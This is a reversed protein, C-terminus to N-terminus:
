KRFITYEWTDLNLLFCMDTVFAASDICVKHRNAYWLPEECNFDEPLNLDEALYPIPTHGHVVVVDSFHKEDWEDWFHERSWILDQEEPMWMGGDEADYIPTYGAHSLLVLQNQTNEYMAHTPYKKIHEIWQEGWQDCTFDYFTTKGGNHALLSFDSGVGGHSIYPEAAAILMDEHNGKLPIFRSDRAIMKIMEWGHAGRDAADGLFYVSDDPQLFKQIKVLLEKQGHLDSCVYVAM